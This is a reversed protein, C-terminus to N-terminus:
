IHIIPAEFMIQVQVYLPREIVEPRLGTALRYRYIAPLLASIVKVGVMRM